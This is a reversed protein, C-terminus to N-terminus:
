YTALIIVTIQSQDSEKKGRHKDGVKYPICPGTCQSCLPPLTHTHVIPSPKYYMQVQCHYSIGILMTKMALKM